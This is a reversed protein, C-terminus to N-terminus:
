ADPEEKPEEGARMNLPTLPEDLGDLPNLELKERGENRTMVGMTVMKNIFDATGKLAGRLLGATVFKTYYGQAREEDTLM